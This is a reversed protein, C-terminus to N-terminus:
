RYIFIEDESFPNDEYRLVLDDGLFKYKFIVSHGTVPIYETILGDITDPVGFIQKHINKMRDKLFASLVEESVYVIGALYKTFVFCRFGDLEYVALLQNKEEQLFVGLNYEAWIAVILTDKSPYIYAILPSNNVDTFLQEHTCYDM